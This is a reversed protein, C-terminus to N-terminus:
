CGGAGPYIAPNNDNCDGAQESFGDDDDDSVNTNEDVTGNCNDDRGNAVETAGVYAAVGLTPRDDCDGVSTGYTCPGQECRGDGDDDYRM